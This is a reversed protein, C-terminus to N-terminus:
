HLLYYDGRQLLEVEVGFLERLTAARLVDAKRGDRFLRGEKLCVVRDIEPIIDPLHHTVLVIGVGDQALKRMTDRLETFARFDLSNTPEDLLLTKPGHVLTRAIVVRRLEGSSMELMPRDALHSIELFALLTMAKETMAPTVTDWPWLRLSSFFGSLVIERATCSNRCSEVLEQTVIGLLPRLEFIDWNTTGLIRLESDPGGARPYLERTITKILTSKGSGNPGLIAVHEGQGISLTLSELATRPGQFVTVNRFEILPVAM